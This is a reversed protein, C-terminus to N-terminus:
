KSEEGKKWPFHNNLRLVLNCGRIKTFTHKQMNICIKEERYGTVVLNTLALTDLNADLANHSFM